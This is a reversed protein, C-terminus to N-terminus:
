GCTPNLVELTTMVALVGGMCCGIAFEKGILFGASGSLRGLEGLMAEETERM